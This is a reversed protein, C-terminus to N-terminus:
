PAIEALSRVWRYPTQGYMTAFRGHRDIMWCTLGCKEAFVGDSWPDDGVMVATSTRIEPKVDMIHLWMSPDPKPEGDEFSDPTLVEVIYRDIGLERVHDHTIPNNSIVFVDAHNEALRNLFPMADAFLEPQYHTAIDDLFVTELEFPWDMKEFLEHLIPKPDYAEIARAQAALVAQRFRGDDFPLQNDRIMKPFAHSLGWTISGSALTDDFDLLWTKPMM